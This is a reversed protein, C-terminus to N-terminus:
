ERSFQAQELYEAAFAAFRDQLEITVVTTALTTLQAVDATIASVREAPLGDAVFPEWLHREFVGRLRGAIVAVANQLAEYEDLIEAVPVGLRAVAPGIDAFAANAVIVDTGDVEILGIEVARLIDTQTLGVGEFRGALEALTLRLPERTLTPVIDGVGLLHDLSRGGAWADLAEKIAALSFGREQLHAILRLRDRHDQGYYGVRGRRDPRPLLGKNQYLRVTSAPIGAERAIEDITLDGHDVLVM